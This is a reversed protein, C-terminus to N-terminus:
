TMSWFGSVVDRGPAEWFALSLADASDPSGGIRKRINDKLEIQIRGNKEFYQAAALQEATDDDIASLDWEGINERVFWHIEARLNTFRSKDSSAHGVNVPNFLVSRHDDVLGVRIYEGVGISDYNFVEVGEATMMNSIEAVVAEPTSGRFIFQKLAKNGQRTWGVTEDDGPGAVDLGMVIPGDADATRGRAEVISSWPVVGDSRDSPFKGLVQSLYRPSDLGYQTGIDQAWQAEILPAGEPLEEDTFNPSDFASIPITHWLDSQTVQHFRSGEYDPNGIALIRCGSTTTVKEAGAWISEPVGSAEDLIVLVYTAHIGQFSDENGDPPKRGFGVIEGNIHWETQNVYGVLNGKTHCRRIERWLITRVQDFTPASTVVMASGPEHSDLWWAACRAATFSKGVAHASPVATRKNDRVSELIQAQKSWLQEGVRKIVWERPKDIYDTLDKGDGRNAQRIAKEARLYAIPLDALDVM